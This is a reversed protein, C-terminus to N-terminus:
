VPAPAGALARALLERLTEREDASLPELVDDELGDLAREAEALARRGADTIEVVHRRRDDPHRRREAWGAAELDNLLLVCNNADLMLADGLQSQGVGPLQRLHSLAIYQKLRMGLVEETARRYVRRSLSTLLVLAGTSPEPTM